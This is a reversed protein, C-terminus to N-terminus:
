YVEFLPYGNEMDYQVLICVVEMATRHKKLDHRWVNSLCGFTKIRGNFTEHRALARNKFDRLDQSDTRKKVTAKKSSKYASDGLVFMNEPIQLELGNESGFMGIDNKGAKFPGNIWVLNNEWIAIGIEYTVGPGGYKHSYWSSSPDKRNERTRFHVGDVTLIIIKGSATAKSLDIKFDKLSQMVPLYEWIWKSLIGEDVGTAGRLVILTEYLFLFRGGILLKELNPHFNHKRDQLDACMAAYAAPCVGYHARFYDIRTTPSLNTNRLGHIMGLGFTEIEAATFRLTM